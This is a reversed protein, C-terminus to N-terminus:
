KNEEWTFDFAYEAVGHETPIKCVYSYGNNYPCTKVVIGKLENEGIMFRIKEGIIM